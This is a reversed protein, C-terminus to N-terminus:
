GPELRPLGLARRATDFSREIDARDDAEAVERLGAAAIMRAHRALADRQEDLRLHQAILGIAGLMHIVVAPKAAGAQRIQHFAVDVIGGYTPPDDVLRVRGSRDRFAQPPLRRAMLKSLAGRLRDIVVVATFPDNISPSLGRLAVEVLHRVSFELDQTPTREGGVVVLAAIEDATKPGVVGPPHVRVQRDGTVLFHGARFGLSLVADREAAWAVLGDYDVAQVYGEVPLALHAADADLGAVADPPPPPQPDDGDHLSPLDTVTEDLDRGVRQVVSDAVITRAVGQIFILLALVCALSLGTAVTVAVRPVEAPPSGAEVSRLVLLVYVITMAFLGLTAQNRLDARFIRILRSGYQSAALTLVVVTVSFTMSAMTILSTLLTSLLNRADEGDGGNLWWARVGDEAGRGADLQLMSAALVAGVAVMLMPVFWLSTRIADWLALFRNPLM